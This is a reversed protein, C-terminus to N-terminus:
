ATLSEYDKAFGGFALCILEVYEQRNCGKDKYPKVKELLIEITKPNKNEKIIQGFNADIIQKLKDGSLKGDPGVEDLFVKLIKFFCSVIPTDMKSSHNPLGPSPINATNHRHSLARIRCLARVTSALLM